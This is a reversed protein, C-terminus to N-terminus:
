ACIFELSAHVVNSTRRNYGPLRSSACWLARKRRSGVWGRTAVRGGLWEGHCDVEGDRGIVNRSDRVDAVHAFLPMRDEHVKAIPGLASTAAVDELLEAVERPPKVDDLGDVPVIPGSRLATGSRM